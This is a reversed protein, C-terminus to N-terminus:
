VVAAVSGKSKGFQAVTQASAEGEWLTGEPDCEIITVLADILLCKRYQLAVLHRRGYKKRNASGLGLSQRRHFIARHETPSAGPVEHELKESLLESTTKALCLNFMTSRPSHAGAQVHHSQSHWKLRAAVTALAFSFRLSGEVDPEARASLAWADM